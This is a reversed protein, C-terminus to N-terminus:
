KKAPYAPCLPAVGRVAAAAAAAQGPTYRAASAGAAAAAGSVLVPTGASTLMLCSRVVPRVASGLLLGGVIVAAMAAMAAVRGIWTRRAVPRALPWRSRPLREAGSPPEGTALANFMAFKAALGAEAGLAREIRALERRFRWHGRMARRSRPSRGPLAM